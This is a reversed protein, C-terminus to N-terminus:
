GSGYIERVLKILAVKASAKIKVDRWKPCIRDVVVDKGDFVAPYLRCGVPRNNYIKCKGNELFFCRGNVNRLRRIGNVVVTFEEKRYGLQEIRQVDENTLPM